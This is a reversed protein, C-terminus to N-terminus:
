GRWLKNDITTFEIKVKRLFNGQHYQFYTLIISVFIGLLMRDKGSIIRPSELISISLDAFFLPVLFLIVSAASGSCGASGLRFLSAPLPRHLASRHDDLGASDAIRKKAM